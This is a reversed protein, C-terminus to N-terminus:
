IPSALALGQPRADTGHQKHAAYALPLVTGNGYFEELEWCGLIMISKIFLVESLYDNIDWPM